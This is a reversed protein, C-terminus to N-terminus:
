PSCRSGQEPAKDIYQNRRDEGGKLCVGRARWILQAIMGGLDTRRPAAAAAPPPPVAERCVVPWASDFVGVPDAEDVGWGDVAAPVGEVRAGTCRRWVRFFRVGEPLM